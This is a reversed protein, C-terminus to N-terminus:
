YADLGLKVALVLGAAAIVLRLRGQDVRRVLNPGTVGGLFLGAGLPVVVAWRVDAFLVFGVAAVGNAFGLVLNKAANCRPLSEATALLLAALMLVGAGAGFYGAYISIAFVITATLWTAEPADAVAEEVLRRRWLVAVSSSAVLWPVVLRFTDSPTLLLIGGGVAGGVAGVIIFRRLASRRGVLEPRSGAVSGISSFVLAVTNTVNATLPPLGIILLAPYTVLSALGAVSGCLGGAVGAVFLGVLRLPTVGALTAPLSAWGRPLAALTRGGHPVKEFEYGDAM